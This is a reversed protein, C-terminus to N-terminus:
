SQNGNFVGYATLERRNHPLKKLQISSYNKSLETKVTSVHKSFASTTLKTTMILLAEQALLEVLSNAITASELPSTNTDIALIDFGGFRELLGIRKNQEMNAKIHVIDYDNVEISQCGIGEVSVNESLGESAIKKQIQPLNIEDALVLVRKGDSIRKYDLLANDVAVVKIGQQSLYRTWGGPAAGIDLAKKHRSLDIGFFEVAEKMKFEARNIRDVGERNAQRFSDLIHGKQVQTDIHGIIVSSNLLIAYIVVEPTKLDARYGRRELDEGLRVEISKATEDAMFDIKKAEIKFSSHKHDDIVKSIADEIKQYEILNGTDIIADVPMVFDVFSSAARRIKAPVEDSVDKTELKFFAINLANNNNTKYPELKSEPLVSRLEREAM